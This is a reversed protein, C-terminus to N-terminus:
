DDSVNSGDSDEDEEEGDDESDEEEEEDDEDDEDGSAGSPDEESDDDVFVKNYFKTLDKGCTFCSLDGQRIKDSICETCLVSVDCKCPLKLEDNQGRCLLCTPIKHKKIQRAEKVKLVKSM